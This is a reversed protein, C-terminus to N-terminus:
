KNNYGLINVFKILIKLCKELRKRIEEFRLNGKCNISNILFINLIKKDKCKFQVIIM